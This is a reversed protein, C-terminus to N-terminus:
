SWFLSFFHYMKEPHLIVCFILVDFFNELIFKKESDILKNCDIKPSIRKKALDM